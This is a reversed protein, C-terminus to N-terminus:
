ILCACTDGPAAVQAVMQAAPEQSYVLGSVHEASKGSVKGYSGLPIQFLDEFVHQANKSSKCSIWFHKKILHLLSIMQKKDLFIVTNKLLNDPLKM